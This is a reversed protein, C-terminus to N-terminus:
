LGFPGCLQHSLRLRPPPETSLTSPRLPGEIEPAPHALESGGKRVFSLDLREELRRYLNDAPLLADLNTEAFLKFRKTRHGMM